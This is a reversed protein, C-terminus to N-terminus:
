WYYVLVSTKGDENYDGPVCGMPAMTVSNYPLGRPSLQIPAYPHGTGPVPELTVTNYRPDVICADQSRGANRLDTLAVAAGVASIWSRIGALAPAVQRVPRPTAMGNLPVKSFVFPQAAQALQDPSLEPLHAMHWTVVMLAVACIGSIKGRLALKIMLFAKGNSRGSSATSIDM